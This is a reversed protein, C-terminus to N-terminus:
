VANAVREVQQYTLLGMGNKLCEELEQDEAAIQLEEAEQRLQWERNLKALADARTAKAEATRRREADIRKRARTELPNAAM